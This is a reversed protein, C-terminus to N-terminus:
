VTAVKMYNIFKSSKAVCTIILFLVVGTRVFFNILHQILKDPLGFLTNPSLPPSNSDLSNLSMRSFKVTLTMVVGASAGHFLPTHSHCLCIRVSVSDFIPSSIFQLHSADNAQARYVLFERMSKM